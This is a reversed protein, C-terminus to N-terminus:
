QFKVWIPKKDKHIEKDFYEYKDNNYIFQRKVPFFDFDIRINLSDFPYM